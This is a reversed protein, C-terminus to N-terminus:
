HCSITLHKVNDFTDGHELHGEIDGANDSFSLIYIFRKKNANLFLKAISKAYDDRAFEYKDWGKLSKRDVFDDMDPQLSEIGWGRNIVKAIKNVSKTPKQRKLDNWIIKSLTDTDITKEVDLYFSKDCNDYFLKKIDDKNKPLKNLAVVFSSSSSNSVFGNRIKM